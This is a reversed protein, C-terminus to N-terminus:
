KNTNYRTVSPSLVDTSTVTYFSYNYTTDKLSENDKEKSVIETILGTEADVYVDYDASDTDLSLDDGKYNRFVYFIRGDSEIKHIPTFFTNFAKNNSCINIIYDASIASKADISTTGYDSITAIGNKSTLVTLKEGNGNALITKTNDDKKYYKVLTLDSSIPNTISVSYNNCDVFKEAKKSLDNIIAYRKSFICILFITLILILGWLVILTGDQKKKSNKKKETEITVKGIQKFGDQKSSVVKNKNATAKTTTKNAVPKVPEKKAIPKATAKNEVSKETEVKTVNKKTPVKKTTVKSTAKKPTSKTTTKTTTTKKAVPKKTTKTAVTKRTNTKAKTTRKVTEKKEDNAM